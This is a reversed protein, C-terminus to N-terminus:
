SAGGPEEDPWVIRPTVKVAHGDKVAIRWIDGSDEGEASIYGTYTRDPFTKVISEVDDVIGYFKTEETTVPVIATATKRTVTVTGEDTDEETIEVDIRFTVGGYQDSLWPSDKFEAWTLPPEIRIEDSFRTYYGM